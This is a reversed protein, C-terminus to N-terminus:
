AAAAAGNNIPIQQPQQAAFVFVLPPDSLNSLPLANSIYGGMGDLRLGHVQYHHLNNLFGGPPPSQPIANCAVWDPGAFSAQHQTVWQMGNNLNHVVVNNIQPM